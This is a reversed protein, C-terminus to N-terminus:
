IVDFVSPFFVEKVFDILSNPLTSVFYSYLVNTEVSKGSCTHFSKGLISNKFMKKKFDMYSVRFRRRIFDQRRDGIM